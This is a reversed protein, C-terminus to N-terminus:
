FECSSKKGISLNALIMFNFQCREPRLISSGHFYKIVPRQLAEKFLSIDFFAALM